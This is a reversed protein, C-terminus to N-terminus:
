VHKWTKGLKISSICTEHVGFQEAIARQTMSKQALLNKIQKVQETRLKSFKHVEGKPSNDRGLGSMWRMNEDHTVWELNSAHNNTPDNDIHAVHPKNEPNPVFAQAVLRHVKQTHSKQAKSFKVVQYKRGRHSDHTALIQGKCLKGQASGNNTVRDVSRVRGRNSVQYFGAWGPVDRWREM